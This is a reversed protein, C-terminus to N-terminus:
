DDSVVEELAAELEAPRQSGVFWETGDSRVVVGRSGRLRYVTNGGPTRRLGWHWGGYDTASYSAARVERIRERPLHRFTRQFPELRVSLGDAGVETVLRLVLFRETVEKFLTADRDAHASRNM